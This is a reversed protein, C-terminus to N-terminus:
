FKLRFFLLKTFMVWWILPCFLAPPMFKPCSGKVKVHKSPIQLKITPIKLKIAPYQTCQQATVTQIESTFVARSFKAFYM